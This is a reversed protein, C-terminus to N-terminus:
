RRQAALRHPNTSCTFVCEDTGPESNRTGLEPNGAATRNSSLFRWVRSLLFDRKADKANKAPMKGEIKGDTIKEM